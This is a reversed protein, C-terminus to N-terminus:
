SEVVSSDDSLPEWWAERQARIERPFCREHSVLKKNAKRRWQVRSEVLTPAAGARCTAMNGTGLGTGPM